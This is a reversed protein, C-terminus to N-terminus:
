ATQKQRKWWNDLREKLIAHNRQFYPEARGLGWTMFGIGLLIGTFIRMLSNFSGLDDGIYFFNPFTNRTIYSLWLNDYRFGSTLSTFDSIYHTIGDIWLPAVLILMWRMSLPRFNPRHRLLAFFYATILGSGFMTTLRDSWAMKWGCEANGRFAAMATADHNFDGVLDLPLEDPRYMLNKGFFFYSRNALQHSILHYLDYIFNGLPTWGLWMFLPALLPLLNFITFVVLWIELWHKFAWSMLMVFRVRPPIVIAKAM